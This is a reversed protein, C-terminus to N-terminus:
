NEGFGSEIAHVIRELINKDRPDDVRVKVLTGKPCQLTLIDMISTADAVRDDKEIWVGSQAPRATEAIMAASRAHLGLENCIVASKVLQKRAQNMM